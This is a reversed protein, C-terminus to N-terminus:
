FFRLPACSPGRECSPAVHRISVEGFSALCPLNVSWGPTHRGRLLGGHWVCSVLPVLVDGDTVPCEVGGCRGVVSMGVTRLMMWFWEETLRSPDPLVCRIVPVLRAGARIALKIFGKRKNIVLQYQGPIANLSQCPCVVIGVGVPMGVMWVWGLIGCRRSCLSRWGLPNACWLERVSVLDFPAQWLSLALQQSSPPTQQFLHATCRSVLRVEQAGGVVLGVSRGKGLVHRVAFCLDPVVAVCRVCAYVPVTLSGVVCTACHHRV